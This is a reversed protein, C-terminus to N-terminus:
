FFFFVEGHIDEANDWTIKWVIPSRTTKAARILTIRYRPFYGLFGTGWADTGGSRHGEDCPLMWHALVSEKHQFNSKRLYWLHCKSESKAEQHRHRAIPATNGTVSCFMQTVTAEVQLSSVAVGANAGVAKWKLFFCSSRGKDRYVDPSWNLM